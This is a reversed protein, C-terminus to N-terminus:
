FPLDDDGGVQPSTVPSAAPSPPSPNGSPEDRKSIRKVSEAIIETVYVKAGDKEYNRTKIRGEVTVQDGKRIREIAEAGYGYGIVTHWETDTVWEGNKDKYNRNTAVSLRAIKTGSELTKLEGDKGANGVLIAKNM